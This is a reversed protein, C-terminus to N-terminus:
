PCRLSLGPVGTAGSSSSLDSGPYVVESFVWQGAIGESAVQTSKAAQAYATISDNVLQESVLIENEDHADGVPSLCIAPSLRTWLRATWLVDIIECM